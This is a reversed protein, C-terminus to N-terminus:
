REIGAGPSACSLTAQLRDAALNVPARESRGSQSMRGGFIRAPLGGDVARPLSANALHRDSMFDRPALPVIDCHPHFICPCLLCEDNSGCWGGLGCLQYKSISSKGMQWQTKSESSGLRRVTPFSNTERRAPRGISHCLGGRTRYFM